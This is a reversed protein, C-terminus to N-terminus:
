EGKAWGISCTWCRIAWFLSSWWASNCCFIAETWCIPPLRDDARGGIGPIGPPPMGGIGPPPVDLGEAREERPSWILAFTWAPRAPCLRGM